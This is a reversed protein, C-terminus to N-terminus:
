ADSECVIGLELMQRLAERLDHDATTREVEFCECLEDVIHDFTSSPEILRWLFAATGNLAFMLEGQERAQSVPVLFLEGGLTREVYEPNRLYSTSEATVVDGGGELGFNKGRM